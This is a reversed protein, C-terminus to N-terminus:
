ASRLSWMLTSSEERSALLLVAFVVLVLLSAPVLLGPDVASLGLGFQLNQDSAGTLAAAYDRYATPGLVLATAGTAVLATTVTVVASRTRFVFMWGLVPLLFPKAVAAVVIGLPVSALLRERSVAFYLAAAMVISVNGLWLDDLIFTSTFVFGYAAARIIWGAGRTADAVCWAVIAVKVAFWAWLGADQTGMVAFPWIVLAGLPSYFYGPVSYPDGGSILLASVLLHRSGYIAYGAQPFAAVVAPLDVALTALGFWIGIMTGAIAGAVLAIWGLRRARDAPTPRTLAVAPAGSGM